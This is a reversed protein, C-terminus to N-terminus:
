TGASVERLAALLTEFQAIQRKAEIRERKPLGNRLEITVLWIAERLEDEAYSQGAYSIRSDSVIQQIQYSNTM